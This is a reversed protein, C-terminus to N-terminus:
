PPTTAATTTPPLPPPPPPPNQPLPPRPPPPAQRKHTAKANAALQQIRRQADAMAKDLDPSITYQGNTDMELLEQFKRADEEAIVESKENYIRAAYMHQIQMAHAVLARRIRRLAAYWVQHQCFSAGDIEVKAFSTYLERWTIRILALALTSGMETANWQGLVTAITRNNPADIGTDAMLKFANNWIPKCHKCHVLHLQSEIEGCGLRCTRDATAPQKSRVYLARHILKFWVKCDDDNALENSVTSWIQKWQKADLRIKLREEWALECKPRVGNYM